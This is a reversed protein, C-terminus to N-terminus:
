FNGDRVEFRTPKGYTAGGRRQWDAVWGILQEVAVRPRGLLKFGLQGDSLLADPAEDGTFTVQKDFLKAFQEAVQRVSLTEPGAVNVVTPPTSVQDLARLVMASADGQWIANFYGM